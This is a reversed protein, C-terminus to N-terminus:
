FMYKVYGRDNKQKESSILVVKSLFLYYSMRTFLGDDWDALKYGKLVSGNFVHLLSSFLHVSADLSSIYIYIYIYLYIYIYIYYM